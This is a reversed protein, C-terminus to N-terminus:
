GERCFGCRGWFLIPERWSGEGLRSSESRCTRWASMWERARPAGRGWRWRWMDSMRCGSASPTLSPGPARPLPPPPPPPLALLRPRYRKPTDISKTRSNPQLPAHITALVLPGLGMDVRGLRVQLKCRAVAALAAVEPTAPEPAL